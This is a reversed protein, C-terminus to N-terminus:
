KFCPSFDWSFVDTKYACIKEMKFSKIYKNCPEANDYESHTYLGKTFHVYCKRNYHNTRDKNDM